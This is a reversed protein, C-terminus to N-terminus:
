SVGCRPRKQHNSSKHVWKHREVGKDIAMRCKLRNVEPHTSKQTALRCPHLSEPSAVVGDAEPPPPPCPPVAAIELPPEAPLTPRAPDPPVAVAPASPPAPVAVACGSAPLLAPPLSPPALSLPM